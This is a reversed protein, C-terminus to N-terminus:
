PSPVVAKVWVGDRTFGYVVEEVWESALTDNLFALTVLVM